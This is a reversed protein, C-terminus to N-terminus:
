PYLLGGKRETDWLANQNSLHFECCFVAPCNLALLIINWTDRASNPHIRQTHQPTPPGKIEVAEKHPGFYEQQLHQPSHLPYKLAPEIKSGSFVCVLIPWLCPRQPWHSM